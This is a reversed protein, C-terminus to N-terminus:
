DELIDTLTKDLYHLKDKLDRYQNAQDNYNISDVALQLAVMALLDQHDKYAYNNAYQKMKEEILKGASRLIQEESESGVSLRYPRDGINVTIIQEKM